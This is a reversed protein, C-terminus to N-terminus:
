KKYLRNGTNPDIAEILKTLYLYYQADTSIEDLAKKNSHSHDTAITMNGGEIVNVVSSGGNGLGSGSFERLRKSRPRAARSTTTLKYKKEM